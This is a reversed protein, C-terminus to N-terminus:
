LRQPRNNGGAITDLTTAAANFDVGEFSVILNRSLLQRQQVTKARFVSVATGLFLFPSKCVSIQTRTALGLCHGANDFGKRQSLQIPSTEAVSQLRLHQKRASWNHYIVRM